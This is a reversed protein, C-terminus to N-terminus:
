RKPGFSRWLLYVSGPIILLGLKVIGTAAVFGGGTAIVLGAALVAFCLTMARGYWTRYYSLRQVPVDGGQLQERALAAVFAEKFASFGAADQRSTVVWRPGDAADLELYEYKQFGRSVTHDFKWSTLDPLRRVDRREAHGSFSIYHREVRDGVLTYRATGALRRLGVYLAGLMLVVALPPPFGVAMTGFLVLMILWWLAIAGRAQSGGFVRCHVTPAETPTM